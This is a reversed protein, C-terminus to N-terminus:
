ALFGGDMVLETGTMWRSRESLLFLAGDAVDSVDGFGLPYRAAYRAAREQGMAALTREAAPTNVWGLTLANVRVRKPALEVALGRMAAVLAAKATSYAILGAEARHSAVSSLFLHSAGKSGDILRAHALRRSLEIGSIANVKIARLLRDSGTLNLPAIEHLGAVHVFGHIQCRGYLSTVADAFGTEDALDLVIREIVAEALPSSAQSLREADRGCLILTAGADACATAIAQGIASTAGSIFITRGSLDM